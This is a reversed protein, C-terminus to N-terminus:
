QIEADDQPEMNAVPPASLFILSNSALVPCINCDSLPAKCVIVETDNLEVSSIINPEQVSLAVLIQLREVCLNFTIIIYKLPPPPLSTKEKSM